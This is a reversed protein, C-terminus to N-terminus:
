ITKLQEILYHSFLITNTHTFKHVLTNTSNNYLMNNIFIYNNISSNNPKKQYKVTISIHEKKRTLFLKKNNEFM